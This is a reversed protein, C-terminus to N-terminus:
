KSGAFAVQVYDLQLGLKIAKVVRDFDIPKAFSVFRGAGFALPPAENPNSCLFILLIHISHKM